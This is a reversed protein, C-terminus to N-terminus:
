NAFTGYELIEYKNKYQYHCSGLEDTQTSPWRQHDVPDVMSRHFHLVAHSTPAWRTPVRPHLPLPLSLSLSHRSQACRRRLSAFPMLISSAISTFTSPHRVEDLAACLRPPLSIPCKQTRHPIPSATGKIPHVSPTSATQCLHNHSVEFWKTITPSSHFLHVVYKLQQMLSKISWPTATIHLHHSM